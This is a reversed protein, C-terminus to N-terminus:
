IDNARSNWMNEREKELVCRIFAEKPMHQKNSINWAKLQRIM